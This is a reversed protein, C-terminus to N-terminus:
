RFESGGHTGNADMLLLGIQWQNLGFKRAQIKPDKDDAFYGKTNSDMKQFVLKVDYGGNEVPHMDAQTFTYTQVVRAEAVDNGPYTQTFTVLGPEIKLTGVGRSNAVTVQQGNRFAIKAKRDFTGKFPVEFNAVPGAATTTTPAVVASTTKAPAASASDKSSGSHGKGCAPLALLVLAFALPRYLM